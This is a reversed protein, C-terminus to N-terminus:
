ANETTLLRVQTSQVPASTLSLSHWSEGRGAASSDFGFGPLLAKVPTNKPTPLYEGLLRLYGAATAREALHNMVLHEVTRGMARCSMLWTDLRLAEGAEAGDGDPVALVVSIIGYDGFKDALQVAFCVAGPTAAMEEVKVRSHRRTTLNFQNTKTILDVVRDITEASIPLIEAGMELSSLYEEPSAAVGLAQKRSSEAAYQATRAADASTIGVAEFALTEQLVRVYMSPDAPVEPVLVEPLEARVHAREVPNDDFFVFSDLGLNLELAIERLRKPKTDWSAHFAAFDELRLALHPNKEFPERADADNNKSCVALLVGSNRLRKVHKQFALFAEGETSGAATAVGHPGVEGVVGGWLTNDLDLVLVKKRGTTLVRIGAAIHRAMASLGEPSFPQKLWHYNREDYFRSKGHWSSIHKLDVLYAGAPLAARLSANVRQILSIDGEHEHRSTLGYGLAGVGMWDYSVQVMKCKLRAVQAWCQQLFAVEDEIRQAAGRADHALLRQNWPLIVVVDPAHEEKLAMLSQVVQDYEADSVQVHMGDAWAWAVLMPLLYTTTCQGAVFIRLPEMAAAGTAIEASEQRGSCLDKQLMKGLQSVANPELASTERRALQLAVQLRGEKKLARYQAVTDM